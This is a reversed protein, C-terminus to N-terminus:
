RRRDGTKRRNPLRTVNGALHERVENIVKSLSEFAKKDYSAHVHKTWCAHFEKHLKEALELSNM